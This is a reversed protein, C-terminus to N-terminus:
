WRLPLKKLLVIRREVLQLYGGTELDKLIRSVMERSCGVRSALEAHTLRDEIRQTGDEQPKALAYLCQTLRGYVDIFALNKTNLTTARLRRIVKALLQLAFEPRQAIFALLRARTIIACTTAQLTIVDASRAEGDLAMEGFYEGASFVGFTVEKDNGDGNPNTDSRTSAKVQGSLVIFMTDGSDGEHILITGKRYRRVEGRTALARLSLDYRDDSAFDDLDNPM